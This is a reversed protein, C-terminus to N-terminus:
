FSWEFSAFGSRGPSDFGSGHERYRLDGINEMGVQINIAPTPRWNARAGFVAWGSTGDPNIRPDVLDRPSLRAQDGAWYMSAELLWQLNVRFDARLKGFAPPIRDAAYSMGDFAEEGWTWTGTAHLRTRDGIGLTAGTEVGRLTLRTANRSQVFLRGASDVAGTLVQTIKEQYHSEFAFLEARLRENEFKLGLDATVVSEPELNPNPISFRNARPGFTGLDFVNPPRFGRGINAVLNLSPTLRWLAGINGSLDEPRTRVGIDNITPTLEIDYRTFRLGGSLDFRPHLKWRDRVYVGIWKMTSGDPFRSPRESLAGTTLNARDRSSDVRDHYLEFGYGLEHQEGLNRTFHGVAGFLTSANQEIDRNLTGFDRSVRDDVIRQAGIQLDMSDALLTPASSMWRLQGFWREQPEFTLEASDPRTQGFGPVLADYRATHPQRTYQAQAILHHDEDVNWTFKAFAGQSSMDTYPLTESGGVRLEEAELWSAGMHMVWDATGAEGELQSSLRQDAAVWQASAKGRVQLEEGEFEPSRSLFQAVGGMADGGHYTALPGRVVEIRELNWADVLALYQNPANRFIANNLRFGDVLHLVESGKLGRIIPIGQGPTTQQVYTGPEGRLHDVVTLPLHRALEVRDVVTVAPSVQQVARREVTATVQVVELPTEPEGALCCAGVLLAVGGSKRRSAVRRKVGPHEM